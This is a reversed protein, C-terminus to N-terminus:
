HESSRVCICLPEHLFETCRITISVSIYSMYSWSVLILINFHLYAGPVRKVLSAAM